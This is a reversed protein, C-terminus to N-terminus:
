PEVWRRVYDHQKSTEPSRPTRYIKEMTQWWEAIQALAGDGTRGHRVLWCGVVTGTRGVGGWCHLYVTKTDALAADIANLIEVMHGPNRPVSMDRIPYGTCEVNRDLRRAEVEAIEQYPVLEGQETLDIFYDIGAELLANLKRSADRPEVAGPYEGAALQGPIIWYGNSVPFNDNNAGGM